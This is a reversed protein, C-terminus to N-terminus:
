ILGVKTKAFSLFWKHLRSVIFINMLNHYFFFLLVHSNCGWTIPRANRPVECANKDVSSISSREFRGERIPATGGNMAWAHLVHFCSWEISPWGLFCFPWRYSRRSTWSAVSLISATSHHNDWSPRPYPFISVLFRLQRSQRCCLVTMQGTGMSGQKDDTTYRFWSM